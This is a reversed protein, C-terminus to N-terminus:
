RLKKLQTDKALLKSNKNSLEFYERKLYILNRERVTIFNNRLNLQFRAEQLKFGHKGTRCEPIISFLDQGEKTHCGKLYKFLAIM